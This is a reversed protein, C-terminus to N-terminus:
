REIVLRRPEDGAGEFTGPLVLQGGDALCFVVQAGLLGALRALVDKSRMSSVGAIHSYGECLQQLGKAIGDAPGIEALQAQIVKEAGIGETPAGTLLLLDFPLGLAHAFGSLDHAEVPEFAILLTRSPM